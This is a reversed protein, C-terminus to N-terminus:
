AGDVSVIGVRREADEAVGAGTGWAWTIKLWHLSIAILRMCGRSNRNLLLRVWGCMTGWKKRVFRYFISIM